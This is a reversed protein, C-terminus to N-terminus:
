RRGVFVSTSSLYVQGVVDELDSCWVVQRTFKRGKLPVMPRADLVPVHVRLLLM